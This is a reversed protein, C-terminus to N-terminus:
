GRRQPGDGTLMMVHEVGGGRLEAIVGAAEARVEDALEIWGAYKGDIGVHVALRGAPLHLSSAGAEGDAAGAFARRGVRVARGSVQAAVGHGAQEVVGSSARVALGRGQAAAVIPGAM